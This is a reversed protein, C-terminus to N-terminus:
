RLVQPHQPHDTPDNHTTPQDITRLRVQISRSIGWNGLNGRGERRKITNDQQNRGPEGERGNKRGRFQAGRQELKLNRILDGRM